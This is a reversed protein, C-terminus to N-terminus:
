PFNLEASSPRSVNLDQAATSYPLRYYDEGEWCGLCVLCGQTRRAGVAATANPCWRRAAWDMSGQVLQKPELARPGVAEDIVAEVEIERQEGAQKARGDRLGGHDVGDDSCSSLEADLVVSVAALSHAPM